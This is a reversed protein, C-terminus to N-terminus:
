GARDTRATGRCPHAVRRQGGTRRSAPLALWAPHRSDMLATALARLRKGDSGKLRSRESVPDAICAALIAADFVHRDRDRQDALYAAGKLVLAGLEDPIGVEVIEGGVNLALTVARDLAQTGGEVVFMPRRRLMAARRLHDPSMVDIRDNGREFRYM